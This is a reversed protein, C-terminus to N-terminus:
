TVPCLIPTTPNWSGLSAGSQITWQSYVNGDSYTGQSALTYNNPDINQFIQVGLQVIQIFTYGEFDSNVYVTIFETSNCAANPTTGYLVQIPIRNDPTPSTSTNFTISRVTCEIANAQTAQIAWGTIKDASSVIGQLETAYRQYILTSSNEPVTLPNIIGDYFQGDEAVNNNPIITLPSTETTNGSTNIYRIRIKYQTQSNTNNFLDTVKVEPIGNFLVPIYIVPSLKAQITCNNITLYITRLCSTDISDRLTVQVQTGQPQTFQYGEHQNSPVLVNNVLIEYQTNEGINFWELLNYLDVTNVSTPIKISSLAIDCRVVRVTTTRTCPPSAGPRTATVPFSSYQVLLSADFQYNAKQSTPVPIGNATFEYNSTNGYNFFLGLNWPGQDPRIIYPNIGQIICINDPLNRYFTVNYKVTKYKLKKFPNDRNLEGDSITLVSGSLEGDFKAQEQERDFVVPQIIEALPTTIEEIGWTKFKLGTPTMVQERYATSSEGNFKSSSIAGFGVSNFIGSNSGTIFGTKIATELEPRDWQMIPSVHKSRDLLHPKIIIGTDAVARAPIFDRIMRFLVNDFFKILRIFDKLDYPLTQSLIENAYQKLTTYQNSASSRPDGIYQDINFPNNPFLVASQSIIYADINHTPSFGVEVTHLDKTYDKPQKVISTYYSLTDGEVISGTNNVRVKDLSSSFSDWEGFFPSDLSSRGGYTRISLVESPIGFCNILARLGRETGKSKMLLPLNHYIRKYIEKQYDSQSTTNDSGTIIPQINPESELVEYTNSTFYRFLDQASRNSTYLKVGFNKLLDEILDKSVGKDLRNDADYKKTVADTYIWINDFHQGIMHIFLEYPRNNEDEKLYAPISNTLLNPNQSDYLVAEQLHESFWQLAIGATASLNEYPKTNNAKPWSSSGSEFYLHREYHDFNSLIGDISDKFLKVSGEKGTGSYSFNPAQIIDLQSQYHDILNLKYRFNRLREEASSFNVFENYNQYNISLEAGKEGLLSNLERFNNSTPFSFLEIYNFYESPETSQTDVEINFNAGRLTPIVEQEPIITTNIEFAVSDSVKEVINLRRKTSVNIPLPNYLKVLVASTEKYNEIDINVIPLFINSGFYLYLDPIFAETSFKGILSNTVLDITTKGLNVSVLRVETRDPSISEIYFDQPTTNNSYPYDLFNYLIKVEQGNYGYILYDQKVDISIESTGEQNDKTDGTLISYNTYNPITQLRIGDLTFFNAEIFNDGPKFTKTIEASTIISLDEDSLEIFGTLGEPQIKFINYEINAM